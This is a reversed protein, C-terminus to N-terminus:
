SIEDCKRLMGTYVAHFRQSIKKWDFEEKVMKFSNERVTLYRPSYIIKEMDRLALAITIPKIDQLGIGSDYDEVVTKVNTAESVISPIGLLACELVAMPIGDYRSPHLFAHMQKMLAVKDDGFQSGFFKIQSELKLDIAKEELFTRDPGDGLLWLVGVGKYKNKYIAYADLLLDLGKHSKDLRGMFGFVPIAPIAGMTIPMADDAIIQGNPIIVKKEEPVHRMTYGSEKEGLLHIKSANKILKKEFLVFYLAKLLYSKRLAVPNYAGHPTFIFRIGREKLINSITFFVPIFAGHMHVIIPQNVEKLALLLEPCVKFSKYAPFLHLTFPPKHNVGAAIEPTIGWVEVDFGQEQQTTALSYVVKNVGNMRNPNVKGLVIHVIKM